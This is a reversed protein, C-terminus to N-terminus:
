WCRLVSPVCRQVKAVELAGACLSAAGEAQLLLDARAPCRSHGRRGGDGCASLAM